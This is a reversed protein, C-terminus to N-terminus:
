RVSSIFDSSVDNELAPVAGYSVMSGASDTRRPVAGAATWRVRRAARCNTYLQSGTLWQGRDMRAVTSSLHQYGTAFASAETSRTTPAAKSPASALGASRREPRAANNREANRLCRDDHRCPDGCPIPTVYRNQSARHLQAHRCRCSRRPPTPHPRFPPDTM